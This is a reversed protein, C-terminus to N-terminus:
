SSIGHTFAKEVVDMRDFTAKSIQKHSYLEALEDISMEAINSGNKGVFLM